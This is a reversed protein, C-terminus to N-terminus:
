MSAISRIESRPGFKPATVGSAEILRMVRGRQGRYPELLRVMLDDDGRAWGGLVWAVINPLHFDGTIVADPDGRVTRVVNAATWPGVGVLATLRRYADELPMEHIEEIRKAYSCARKVIDARKREVGFRHLTWYPLSALVQPEPQLRLPRPGPAPEGYRRVISAFSRRAASGHVKQELITPVLCEIASSSRGLRLGRMRRHMDLLTPHRPELADEDLVGVLAPATELSWAAGPGWATAELSGDKVKVHLTSPGEPTRTARWFGSGDIRTTPDGGGHRLPALTLALDIRERPRFRRTMGSDTM